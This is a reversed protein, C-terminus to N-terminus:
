EQLISYYLKLQINDRETVIRNFLHTIQFPTDFLLLDNKLLLDQSEAQLFMTMPRTYYSQLEYRFPGVPAFINDIEQGGLTPKGTYPANYVLVEYAQEDLVGLPRITTSDLDSFFLNNSNDGYYLNAESAPALTTSDTPVGNITFTAQNIQFGIIDTSNLSDVFTRYDSMDIKAALGGMSQIFVKDNILDGEYNEYPNISAIETNSRDFELAHHYDGFTQITLYITFAESSTAEDTKRFYITIRPNADNNIYYPEDDVDDPVIALGKFFDKFATTDAFAGNEKKIAETFLKQGFANDINYTLNMGTINANEDREDEVEADGIFNPDYDLKDFSYRYLRDQPYSETLEHIRFRGKQLRESQLKSSIPIFIKVSDFVSNEDFRDSFSSLAPPSPSYYATSKIKGFESDNFVGIPLVRTRSTIVSDLQVQKLNLNITRVRTQLRGVNQDLELGVETPDECATFFLLALCLLAPGKIFFNKNYQLNM